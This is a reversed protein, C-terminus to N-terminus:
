TRYNGTIPRYFGMMPITWHRPIMDMMRAKKGYRDQQDNTRDVAAVPNEGYAAPGATSVRDVSSQRPGDRAM